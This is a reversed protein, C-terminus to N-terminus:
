ARAVSEEDAGDRQAEDIGAPRLLDLLALEAELLQRNLSAWQGLPLLERVDTPSAETRGLQAVLEVLADRGGAAEVRALVDELGASVAVLYRAASAVEEVAQVLAPLM